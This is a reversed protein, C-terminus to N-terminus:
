ARRVEARGNSRQGRFESGQGAGEAREDGGEAWEEVVKGLPAFQFTKLLRNLKRETTSLNVYHRFRSLRSGARLRPQRPDLEWPHLYFVFPRGGARNIHALCYSTWALPYLRFYGGGSVPMNWRAISFVSPPFEWLPGSPTQVAHLMQPADAIGYRDHYIPFISSDLRFGEEVLIELAWLSKRTISFSPARYVTVPVGITDQIVDRSQTLDRRFEAPSMHYVIRHWYSHSGIEHGRDHIERVLRPYRRAVWGLIFFTARVDYYDLLALLRQTSTVLRVAYRGWDRRAIHGEFASVHFYDEVDITLANNVGLQGQTTV